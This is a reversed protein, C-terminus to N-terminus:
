PFWRIIRPGIRKTVWLPLRRWVRTAAEFKPNMPSFDPLIKRRVPLVQYELPQVSMNWQTKFEYAGTGVKSRGFDFKRIGLGTAIKMLEWYMLNNAALRPAEGSAGAYYPLITDRFLFSFVGSVPKPGSYIMLLETRDHFEAVLNELLAKPFVPTGHRRMSEALLGYFAGLEELGRRVRLGAKEAKRIMYRTDKPLRKLNTEEDASLETSFNMYLCRPHFEPLGACKKYRLELIEVQESRAFRKIHGILAQESEDDEACIGGYVGFPVSLLCRGMVWNSILFLPAVGTVRGGREVYFYRSEYDFTREIARKWGSLQFLAGGQQDFVFDDWCGASRAGFERVQLATPRTSVSRLPASGLPLSPNGMTEM